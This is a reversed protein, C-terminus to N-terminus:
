SKVAGTSLGDVMWRQILFFLILAPVAAMVCAAMFANIHSVGGLEGTFDALGVQITKLQGRNVLLSAWLFDNWAGLFTFVSVAVIGPLSMPLVIRVFVQFWTCGDILAAEEIAPPISGKFYGRLLLVAYPISFGVYALILGTRTNLLGLDEILFYIPFVRTIPPILQTFLITSLIFIAGPFRFRALVYAAATAVFSAIIATALSVYLSNGMYRWIPLLVSVDRYAQINFSRPFWIPPNARIEFNTQFSSKLMWYIPLLIFVILIIILLVFGLIKLFKALDFSTSSSQAVRVSM